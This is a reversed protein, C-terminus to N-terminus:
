GVEHPLDAAAAVTRSSEVGPVVPFTREYGHGGEIFGLDSPNIPSAAMRFLVESAGPRPVPIQHVFLPGGDKDLQVAQMTEPIVLSM